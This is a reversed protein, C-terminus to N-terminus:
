MQIVEVSVCNISVGQCWDDINSTVKYLFLQETYLCDFRKDSVNLLNCKYDQYCQNSTKVFICSSPTYTKSM